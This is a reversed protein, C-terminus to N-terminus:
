RHLVHHAAKRQEVLHVLNAMPEKISVSTHKIGPAPM